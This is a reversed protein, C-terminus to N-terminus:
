EGFGLVEVSLMGLAVNTNSTSGSNDLGTAAQAVQSVNATLNSTGTLGAALSGTSAVPVGTGIGSVQINNAGLVATASITVNTGGIGAEGANVVGKPAFLFVDGPIVGSSSAATRIGSGSVIPPFEVVQNGNEDLHFDVPPASIASKAGRGADIDSNSSWLTIDGGDLAFVRSQNVLFDDRVVANIDGDKQAVIGLESSKKAGTFAVALGANIKGGPVLLNIGGGDLTQIKSFFLNLDGNWNTGPFLTEIAAYGRENALGAGGASATGSERIENMYVPMILATLQPQIALYDEAKLSKFGALAADGALEANGSRQRMFDTILASVKVFDAVYLPGEELYKGIFAAYDPNGGNLGSIATINAGRDALGSYILDGLTSIGGSAGLDMNRGTKVLVEGPGAVEVKGPNDNLAGDASRDSTYVLDRGIDITSADNQNAHQVSLLVNSFDRGTHILAKKALNFQINKINGQRTVLRAPENDGAHVPTAAHVLSALGFPNIRAAADSMNNRALPSLATPLLARDADSMGLRTADGKSTIDKEALLNLEGSVSPFLTIENDLIVSGGFATALLSAPYIVALRQQDGEFVTANSNLIEGIKTVDAGLHVDGALSKAVVKSDNGYSFFNTNGKDLIMPDSVGTLSLDQRAQLEIRADSMILQPGATFQSGGKIAGGAGITGQGQGLYYAGGAVDGGAWVHLEGGGQIEVQNTLLGISKVDSLKAPSVQVPQGTQKGTTPMMVSLDSINGDASIEIKGGGFSGVNQQFSGNNLVVGWTTPKQYADTNIKINDFILAQIQPELSDKYAALATADDQLRSLNSAVAALYNDKSITGTGQRVMWADIFQNNNVAGKIDKGAKMLLNGGEVPYDAYPIGRVAMAMALTGYPDADAQRGANYVTSTQDTFVIDGGAVLQMDGTGTRVKVNSGIVLDKTSATATPDASTLDAGATLGYSWSDGLQLMGSVPVNFGPIGSVLNGNKFGDSISENLTFMGDSRIILNGPLDSLGAGENYRWDAFDLKDVLELDGHYDILVGAQLRINGGLTSTVGQMNAPTMYANTDNKIVAIDASTILGDDDTYKNVGEAFFKSYGSQTLVSNADYVPSKHAYGKVTGVIPQIKIGNGDRLARLTVEGGKDATEGSVDILSDAKLNIGSLNDNDTDISSLLVSGGKGGSATGKATLEAGNELTISDGALVNIKGGQETGNAHLQGSIDVAGKDAVLTLTNANISTTAAQIIDADRSRFYISDSIGANKLVAMLSDFSSSASFTSVDFEASGTSAKTQGALTVTQKPAKLVLNGGAAKGGGTSLDLKSGSALSVAGNDAIATFTGGTTYDVKDAFNVARGALDINASSAVAVDGILAHLSLKGSPLLTNADFAVTDAIFEMAGGFGPTVANVASGNGNVQLAHGGADLKFSSGGTTTLYGANLNLDAAVNLVSTGDANFGNNVSLNVANFGNVAFTGAGQTFNTALLDLHGQGSGTATSKANLPNALVLNNAQLRAAQGSSGFGSFGAANVVLRDFKIPAQLGDNGLIPNNSSDVQGVNDYFSVTGRSNLVLEDVSLNLLKQNTLNLANGPSGVGDGMNIANASLNLSGGHMLIDGELTTSKSADLLMSASATLKSGAAVILKGTTSSSANTRNLVVQQDGSIRLLAGDGNLNLVSDGSNVKGSAELEAGSQVEIKDTATAIMDSVYVKSNASFIVEKATVNVDTEGTKANRSRAGGLMLSDIKLASLDGALIELTDTAPSASLQNVVDIKDAAIDMKAGRGGSAADILFQSDLVLKNQAIISIQGSDKPLVPVATENKLAKAAYFDNAVHEEYQSRKRIDAGNEIRFGSWRADRTGAGAVTQYGAVVPLGNKTYTTFTQDQTKAQPTVLFAGGLLAYHAPLITYEGAPLDATGSLYVKSGPEVGWDANQYHDFPALDSGLNPVVAFSGEYSGSGPKLYDFSGGSGPQFEYGLLDGGGSLDVISGKALIVEPAQLVLKKEPPTNFVLNRVSDLPYLWDLGGQTVGFPIVQGAASVSTLSNEGLTLKSGAKLNITGLPAKIVGSQNIVPAEFTLEGAASLPSTDTNNGTVTIQGNPKNKVAFIFKSLTTPYIQSAHLNLDAATVMAGLFERQSGTRLGVTRLDHVSNLDILSFNDWRTAGFLEIWQANANFQAGGAVPLGSVERLQSSGMRLLATNLDVTGTTVGNLSSWGVKGADLDLRAKAILSVNGEFRIENPTSLRVDSFGGAELTDAAVLAQGNFGDPIDDGFRVNADFQQQQNERVRVLLPNNPFPVTPLEPPQRRTNDLALSFLGALTSDSGAFGRMNGDLVAGEAVTMAISGANSAVDVPALSGANGAQPLDLVAHTGSVDILSSKEAILYGRKLDFVVQGGELVDGTRRGLADLPKMRTSGQALLQANSGLRISQSPDYESNPVPNISLNINGAPAAITGDVYIGGLASTLNVTSQKDTTISSGTAVTVDTNAKLSLQFPQRLHEPLLESHTFNHISSDSPKDRFDGNLVWNQSKLDLKADSAVTVGEFNGTLNIAGFGSEPDFAFHGNNVALRLPDTTKSPGSGVVIEGSNLTLSGGKSLSAASVQGDLHVASAKGQEVAALEINGGKGASIKGNQALWAGGDASVKSGAQFFLDGVSRVKISGGDLYLPDIPTAELGQQLDNVWRGSVDLAAAKGLNVDGLSDAITLNIAGGAAHIQGQVDIGAAQVSLEAGPAMRVDTRATVSTLGKTKVTLHQVGSLNTLQTSLMVAQPKNNVNIPFPDELGIPILGKETQFRIDQFASNFATSDVLFRGGDPHDGPLRQYRGADSGATLDGNWALNPAEINISGAALGQRYGQEFQGQGLQDLINWVNEVGWKKHAEKVVGFLSTYHENPDAASIDVIRGYDTLLKTTNIYGDQYEVSGGSIDIKAGDNIIIDGSSTLNIEGGKGLRENIGRTVRAVAGSTDVIKTDKRLDVKITEGKLVGTKQLPADRLEYSQVSIEAVNREMPAIVGKTGSVNILADKDMYIRGKTGQTPSGMNDTATINVKGGPVVIASNSKLDVTHANAELYSQPQKQEDIASAGDSDAVIQTVSGSGFTLKSETGLGDNNDAARTTETAVLKGGLSGHQEQALLRISGNVNVSTTASVRGQQNVAFGAMTVNGQRALIDGANTVKGGTDVEVVLGAFPSDKSAAQLYVKDQSAVMIIQGQEDTSLSGKNDITPAVIIIRGSKDTHIKAGAEILIASTKPDFGSGPEVALAARGDEDFVRTIGRNFVEDSINLTSALLSNANVVSDKGFVFGNQNYLYIQGNAQIQGLIRSPDQQQIRNLAISSSGPQIFQVTNEKGVNFSQWNLIAKDSQQDIRLTDGIIQNTASGSSVWGQGSVPIPLEAYGPAVSGAFLGGTIVLRLCAVLPKLKFLNEASKHQTLQSRYSM